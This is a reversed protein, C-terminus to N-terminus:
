CGLMLMGIHAGGTHAGWCSCGLTLVGIRTGWCSCGSTLVGVHADLCSCGLTLVGAHADWLPCGLRLVGVCAGWCSGGIHGGSCSCRPAGRCGAQQVGFPQPKTKPTDRGRGAAIFCSLALPAEGLHPFAAGSIPYPAGPRHPWGMFYEPAGWQLALLLLFKAQPDRLEAVAHRFPSILVHPKIM